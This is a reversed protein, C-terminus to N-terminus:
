AHITVPAGLPVSRRLLRLAAAPVRVCGLSAYSGITGPHATGHIAVQDGGSWGSLPHMQHASLGLAFSGYPSDAPFRVRDTVSFLGTPTPTEPMGAAIPYSALLSSGRRVSLRLRSLDIDLHVATWRLQLRALDVRAPQPDGSTPVLAVGHRGSHSIILLWTRNGLPTRPLVVGASTRLPGTVRGILFAGPTRGAPLSWAPSHAHAPQTGATAPAVGRNGASSSGMVVLGVIALAAAALVRAAVRRATV